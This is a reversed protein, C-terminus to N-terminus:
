FAEKMARESAIHAIWQNAQKRFEKDTKAKDFAKLAADVQKKEYHALGLLIYARGPQEVEGLEFAKNISEIVKEWDQKEMMILASRVHLDPEKQKAAAQQMALYAKDFEKAALWANALSEWNKGTDEITKNKLGTDYIEAAKYPIDHFMYMNALNILERSTDLLKRKHALEMVSLARKEQKLNFYIGSLQKWYQKREPWLVVMVELLEASAKQNESEFYLALLIRYWNETPSTALEIATRMHEIAKPYNKVQAYATGLLAHGNPAPTKENAIWKTLTVIADQFREAAVQLQGLNLLTRQQVDEPLANLELCRKFYDIAQTYRDQSAYVYAFTQLVLAYEYNKHKTAPELAQLKELAEAYKEAGILEHILTLRKYTRESMTQAQAGSSLVCGCLLLALLSIRLRHTM